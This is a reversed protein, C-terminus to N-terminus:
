HKHKVAHQIYNVDDSKSWHWTNNWPYYRLGNVVVISCNDSLCMLASSRCKQTFYKFIFESQEFIRQTEQPSIFKQWEHTGKPLTKFINEVLYIGMLYSLITRNFTSVFISGGPKVSDICHKLFNEQDNVHEIVESLIVADYKGANACVHTEITDTLYTVRQSLDKDAKLHERAVAILDESPDIGTVNAKLSGLAETLLGGGCGVELLHLGKLNQAKSVTLGDRIFPVRVHNMAHLGKLQGEPDWWGQSHKQLVEINDLDLSPAARQEELAFQTM